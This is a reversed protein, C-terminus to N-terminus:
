CVRRIGFFRESGIGCDGSRNIADSLQIFKLTLHSMNTVRTETFVSYYTLTKLSLHAQKPIM